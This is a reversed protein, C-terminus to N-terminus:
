AAIQQKAEYEAKVDEYFAALTATMYPNLWLAGIGFTFVCLIIWGIFSLILFFCDFKHGKMMKQSLNIAQNASLEPNDKLIFPSMMYAFSKIIGPIFLLLSWLFVFIYYLLSFGVVKPYGNFANSFMNSVVRGDGNRYLSKVANYYGVMGLPYYLLYIVGYLLMITWISMEDGVSDPSWAFEAIVCMVILAIMLVAMLLTALVPQGWNGKLSALAANKYEQNTKM